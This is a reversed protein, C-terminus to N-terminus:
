IEVGLKDKNDEQWHTALVTYTDSAAMRIKESTAPLDFHFWENNGNEKRYESIATALALAVAMGGSAPAEGVGKSSFVANTPGGEHQLLTVRFERPIDAVTPVKYTSPGTTLAQGTKPCILVQEMTAYGMAQVFAGEIQGIDLAPNLSKGVDMVIDARLVTFAGTQCDVEVEVCTTGFVMYEFPIGSFSAMDFDICGTGYFGTASLSIRSAFAAMVWDEWKGNPNADKFPQLRTVIQQCADVVAPGNLDTGTSGATPMTNPVTETSTENTHIKEIPIGLVRSAVQLMKTNLGQGMELGGHSLLVSGDTYVCVFAGGQHLMKLLFSVAFKIPVVALGRKMTKNRGNFAKQNAKLDAYNCQQLCTEWCRQIQCDQILTDGYHPLDLSKTLNKERIILGDIGSVFALHDMVIEIIYTGEPGGFGRFATTPITNTKWIKTNMKVNKLSYGGDLRLMLYSAWIASVDLYSGGNVDINFAISVLTGTEDMTADYGVEINHRRGTITMDEERTLVLRAPRRYKHAALASLLAAPIREKGGFAGGIRKAKVVVRNQQLGLMSSVATQLYTINQTNAYVVLENKEGIPITVAAHTELYFHDQCGLKVVGKVTFTEGKIPVEQDRSLNIPPMFMNEPDKTAKVETLGIISPLEEYDVKVVKLAERGIRNNSAVIAGILQGYFVTEESALIEEEPAMPGWKKNGPIDKSTLFGIVGPIELAESFDISRIKAHPKTSQLVFVQVEDQMPRLDGVYQAEGSAQEGAWANPIPRAVPDFVSQDKGIGQFMQHSSTPTGSTQSTHNQIDNLFREVFVAGLCRRYSSLQGPAREDVTIDQYAHNAIIDPSKVIEEPSRGELLDMISLAKKAPSAKGGNYIGEAGGIVVQVGSMVGQKLCAKFAANAIPLDFEKRRARRYYFVREETKMFPIFIGTILDGGKLASKFVEPLFSEDLKVVQVTSDKASTLIRLSCDLAMFIPILDSCPHAWALHGGITAVNRVQAKTWTKLVNKLTEFAVTNQNSYEQVVKGCIANLQNMTIAAGIWYGEPAVEITKLEPLNTIQIIADPLNSPCPSQYRGLGGACFEVVDFQARIKLVEEMSAPRFWKIGDKQFLLSRNHLGQDHEIEKPVEPDRSEDMPKFTSEDFKPVRFNGKPSPHIQEKEDTVPEKNENKCISRFGEVIPRYGTCRCLNGQLALEVDELELEKKERAMSSMAMVMGPTCFGCQSGHCKYIREQVPHLGGNVTGLGEVTTISTGHLSCLKTLCANIASHHVKHDFTDLRTLTVTCAGCGGENCGVKTGTLGLTTRLYDVLTELPSPNIVEQRKGNVFFVLSNDM